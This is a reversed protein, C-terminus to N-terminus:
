TDIDAASSIFLVSLIMLAQKYFWSHQDIIQDDVVSIPILYIQGISCKPM